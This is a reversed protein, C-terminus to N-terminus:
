RSVERAPATVTEPELASALVHCIADHLYREEGVPCPDVSIIVPGSSYVVTSRSKSLKQDMRWRTFTAEIVGMIRACGEDTLHARTPLLDCSYEGYRRGPTFVAYPMLHAVCRHWHADLKIQRREVLLPTKLLHEDFRM